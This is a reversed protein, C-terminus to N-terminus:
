SKKEAHVHPQREAPASTKKYAHGLKKRVASLAAERSCSLHLKDM